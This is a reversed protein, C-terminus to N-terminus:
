VQSDELFSSLIRYGRCYPEQDAYGDRSQAAKAIGALFSRPFKPLQTAFLQPREAGNKLVFRVLRANVHLSGPTQLVLRYLDSLERIESHNLRDEQQPQTTALESGFAIFYIFVVREIRPHEAIVRRLFEEHAGTSRLDDFVILTKGGQGIEGELWIQREQLVQRRESVDMKSYSHCGFGGEREFKLLRVSMGRDEMLQQLNETVWHAATPVSGFASSALLFEQKSASLEEGVPHQLFHLFTSAAIRWTAVPDGYKM